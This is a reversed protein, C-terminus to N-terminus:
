QMHKTFFELTRDLSLKAAEENYVEPRQENTFAHDADYRYLEYKVGATKWKEELTNVAEPDSFGKSQDKDGFHAQVPGTIKTLDALDASPIGYFASGVSVVDGSRAMAALTLAGGMCFGTCAVAHCNHNERLFRATAEIDLVAGDWDLGSMM